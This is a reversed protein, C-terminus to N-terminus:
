VRNSYRASQDILPAIAIPWRSAAAGVTLTKDPMQQGPTSRSFTMLNINNYWDGTRSHTHYQMPDRRDTQTDTQRGSV